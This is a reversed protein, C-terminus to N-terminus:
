PEIDDGPGLAARIQDPSFGRYQLFRAQRARERYDGPPSVGFRRRRTDRAIAAWDETAAALAADIEEDAVGRERLDMRIRVPGHGRGAHQRIFQELFRSESLLREAVLGAVVTAVVQPPYGRRELRRALELRAFDRGALLALAATRVTREDAEGAEADPKRPRRM